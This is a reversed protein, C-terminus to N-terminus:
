NRTGGGGEGCWGDMWGIWLGRMRGWGNGWVIVLVLMGERRVIPANRNRRRRAPYAPKVDMWTSAMMLSLTRWVRVKKM